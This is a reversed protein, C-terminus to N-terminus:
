TFKWLDGELWVTFNLNPFRILSHGTCPGTSTTHKVLFKLILQWIASLQNCQRAYAHESVPPCVMRQKLQSTNIYEVVQIFKLHPTKQKNVEANAKSFGKDRETRNLQETMDLEKRGWLGCCALSRQGDGVGFSAWVWGDLWHHWGVMEDETTREEQRWDKGANPDKGILRNKVDSPWLIPTEAKADTRGTLIWSQNGKPHVPKIGKCNLPSELTKELLVTWFCWNKLVWNEKYDLEWM